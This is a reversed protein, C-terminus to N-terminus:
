TRVATARRSRSPTQEDVAALGPQDWGSDPRFSLAAVGGTPLVLALLLSGDSAAGLAPAFGDAPVPEEGAWGSEDFVRHVLKGDGAEQIVHLADGLSAVAVAGCDRM